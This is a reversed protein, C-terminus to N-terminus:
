AMKTVAVYIRSIKYWTSFDVIGSQPMDFVKQFVKVAKETQLGYIGDTVLKPIEPYNSSIANLQNQIVAVSNGASGTQLTHGPFSVPTGSVKEAQELYIDRGYYNRLINMHDYGKDGLEKSGWQSMWEPCKVKQGDCYQTFLPQSIYPKTIYTAFLKDVIVSIEEFINRGYSFAQDYATSNTITFKKGMSRYWETFVRNLTLSIISLVNAKITETPWTSYIECCAVNKIYDTFPVYYNVAADNDPTGNHVVITEPIVPKDLVIYGSPQLLPKVEDEPIKSPYESYLVHDPIVISQMGYNQGNDPSMIINQIAITNDLIEVGAVRVAAFGHKVIELTYQAYPKPINSSYELSYEMPPCPLELVESKGSANTVTEFILTNDNHKFVRINVNDLPMGVYMAYVNVFLKGFSPM